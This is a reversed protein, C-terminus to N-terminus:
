IADEVAAAMAAHGGPTPHMPFSGTEQGTLDVWREEPAACVSHAGAGDPLVYRAGNREAAERVVDDLEATLTTAWRADDASLGAIGPCTGEAPLLPVYGTAVVSAEPAAAHVASYVGDLAAPLAALAADTTASLQTRCTSDAGLLLARGACGAIAGFDIDNGGISLTVLDVDPSLSDIQPPLTGADASDTVRPELLNQVRAGQCTADTGGAIRPSQLLLAPYDDASRRCYPPATPQLARGGVAAYSDGLAVYSSYTRPPAADGTGPASPVPSSTATTAPTDGTRADGHGSVGCAALVLLSALTAAALPRARPRTRYQM